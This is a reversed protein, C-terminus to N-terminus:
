HEEPYPNEGGREFWDKISEEAYRPSYEKGQAHEKVEEGGRWTWGGGSQIFWHWSLHGNEMVPQILCLYGEIQRSFAGNDAVEWVSKHLNWDNALTEFARGGNEFYNHVEQKLHSDMRLVLLMDEFIAQDVARFDTMDFPFRQGNYLGLLFAAVKRCQGSNGNAIKFLRRLAPIGAEHAADQTAKAERMERQWEDAPIERVEVRHIQKDDSM